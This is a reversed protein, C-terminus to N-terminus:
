GNFKRLREAAEDSTVKFGHNQSSMTVKPKMEAETWPGWKMALRQIRVHRPLRYLALHDASNIELGIECMMM